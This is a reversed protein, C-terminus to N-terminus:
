SIMLVDQSCWPFIRFVDQSFRSVVYLVDLFMQSCRSFMLSCNLVDQSWGSIMQFCRLVDSFMQSCRFVDSFMQFCRYFMQCWGSFLQSGMVTLKTWSLSFKTTPCFALRVFHWGSMIGVLPQCKTRVKKQPQCKTRGLKRTPMTDPGDWCTKANQGFWSFWIGFWMEYFLWILKYFLCHHSMMLAFQTLKQPSKAIRFLKPFLFQQRFLDLWYNPFKLLDFTLAFSRRLFHGAASSNSVSVVNSQLSFM